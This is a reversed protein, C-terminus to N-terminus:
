NEYKRRKELILKKAKSKKNDLLYQSIENYVKRDRIEILHLLKHIKLDLLILNNEVQWDGYSQKIVHHKTKQKLKFGLEDKM